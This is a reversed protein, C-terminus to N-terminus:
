EALGLRQLQEGPAELEALADELVARLSGGPADDALNDVERPDDVRSFLQDGLRGPQIAWFPVPDMVDFPQRIVPVESGPMRDLWARADPRPLRLGPLAHVPMTSWRNSFMSLPRNTAVPARSYRWEDTVLTVERGWIGTLVAGRVVSATGDLVPVLSHGHTRHTPTVGFVDCLTAHVDVTTTLATTRGPAHGPWAVLLPIHGLESFVPVGPKGWIGGREGLYHGHDTLVIVATDDWARTEDLAGLVEGFWHDIMSLKSGYNARIQRGTREDPLEGAGPFTYPPWVLRPGSWSDDYRSAWPEPTDFPEHPDFEDVLLFFRDHAGANDRLWRAAERMTRPGPFDAEDRFWTRSRDYAESQPAAAVPLAPAGAWSPDLRTKWPDGEHGRLYSWASFDVHYNEGGTEFLHPHDTVLQTVVGAARLDYTIADEWVEISGWPRWLFDLSGCLLDHRAPMCPLSGTQHNEFVVSRRAFEDLNPTTFEDGGYAGLHRRNLSDLLVVVVNRPSSRLAPDSGKSSV